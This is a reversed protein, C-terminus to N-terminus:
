LAQSELRALIDALRASLTPVHEVCGALLEERTQVWASGDLEDADADALATVGELTAEPHFQLALVRGDRAEFAQVPTAESWALRVADEPLDFTDGHWHFAPAADPWGAMNASGDAEPSAHVPFWGIENGSPNRFVRAGLADAVFQSGLCIGLVLKGDDIARRVFRREAPLWAHRADDHINMPGGMVILWDYTDAAPLEEGAFLRVQTVEHGREALWPGIAGLGEFSVHHLSVVRV